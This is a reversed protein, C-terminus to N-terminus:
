GCSACVAVLIILRLEYTGSFLNFEELLLKSDAQDLPLELSQELPSMAEGDAASGLHLESSQKDPEPTSRGNAVPALPSGSLENYVDAAVVCIVACSAYRTLM